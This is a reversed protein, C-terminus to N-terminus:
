SGGSGTFNGLDDSVREEADASLVPGDSTTADDPADPDRQDDLSRPDPAEPDPHTPTTM